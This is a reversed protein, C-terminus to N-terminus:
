LSYKQKSNNMLANSVSFTMYYWKHANSKDLPLSIFQKKQEQSQELGSKISSERSNNLVMPLCIGRMNSNKYSCFGFKPM